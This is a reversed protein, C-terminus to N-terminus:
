SSENRILLFTHSRHRQTDYLTLSQEFHELALVFEGQFHLTIGLVRHAEVLLGTDQISTALNLLQEGLERATQLEARISYFSWLGRLITFLRPADVRQAGQQCLEYARNYAHGVEPAAYGKTAMLVPGLTMHLTLERQFREPTDPQTKLLELAQTLHNTAEAYASRASAQEGAQQWYPIAQDHHGAETYHHAVLEPQREVIDAFQEVLLRAIQRHYHQRTRKLLSQYATERILAHKFTYTAQPPYGRAYLLESAVLRSLDHQLTTEDLSSVAQLWAYSLQRGFVAGLQAVGKASDLRDLRAMLADQLTMPIRLSALAGTLADHDDGESLLGSDLVAKTMEEVFLPVGDSKVLLTDLVEPPLRKGGTLREVMIATQPCSLRQLVVPTLHSRLGWPPDFTPRCTLVALLPVTPTQEVLLDLWALTTPDVWHLDEVILLLPQQVTQEFLLALLLELTKQRQREPSWPLRPYRDEPISLSLLIGLLPVAEELPMQYPALFTELKQVQAAPSDDRQLGLARHLPEMIPYLASHQHYPSGRCEVRIHPAGMLHEKLVQVLRSKGIGAEGSLLVVQGMGDKVQTWRELLLVVEQQRGVLPTLGRTAAVEFHSQVGSSRIVRYVRMPQSLGKLHQTGLDEWTFYGQVLRATAVSMAVTDPATVEQICAAVHPTDGLALQEQKGGGGIEGVVVPGTHMGIRVALRLGHEHELQSILPGMAEVMGLGAWIARQADDEHAWPWGFYVLLADGLYQAIHGDFHQIVEACTAQYAQVVERWDEPDLQSALRTSDVLDCFMVTLQRREADALLPSVPAPAFPEVSHEVDPEQPTEVQRRTLSMGCANCFQAAPPNEQACAPCHTAQSLGCANCFKIGPPNKHQCRPCPNSSGMDSTAVTKTSAAVAADWEEVATVFRYGRGHVTKIYRQARGSDGLAKRAAMLRQTLTAESVSQNPWLQELLEQKSVVRDRYAILYALV